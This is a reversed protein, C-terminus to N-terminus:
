VYVTGVDFSIVGDVPQFVVTPWWLTWMMNPSSLAMHTGSINKYNQKDCNYDIQNEKKSVEKHNFTM